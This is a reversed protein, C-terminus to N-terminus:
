GYFQASGFSFIGGDSAVLDYGDGGPMVAMGVVPKNLPTGGMSGLFPRAPGTASSAATPPWSATARAPSRPPCSSPQVTDRSGTQYNGVAVCAWDTVCSEGALTTQM